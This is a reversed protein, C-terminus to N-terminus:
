LKFDLKIGAKKFLRVSGLKDQSLPVVADFVVEASCVPCPLMNLLCILGIDCGLGTVLGFWLGASIYATLM